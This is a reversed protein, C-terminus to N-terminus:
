RSAALALVVVDIVVVLVLLGAVGLTYIRRVEDEITWGEEREAVGAPASRHRHAVIRPPGTAV